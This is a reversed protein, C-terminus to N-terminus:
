EQAKEMRKERILNRRRTFISVMLEAGLIRVHTTFHEFPAFLLMVALATSVIIAACRLATIHKEAAAEDITEAVELLSLMAWISGIMGISEDGHYLIAAGLVLFLVTRGAAEDM